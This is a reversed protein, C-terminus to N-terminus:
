LRLTPNLWVPLETLMQALALTLLTGLLIRWGPGLLPLPNPYAECYATYLAFFVRGMRRKGKKVGGGFDGFDFTM